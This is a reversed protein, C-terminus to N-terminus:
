IIVSNTLEKDSRQFKVERKVIKVIVEVFKSLMLEEDRTAITGGEVVGGKIASSKIREAKGKTKMIM